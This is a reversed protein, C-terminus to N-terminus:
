SLNIMGDDRLHAYVIWQGLDTPFKSCSDFYRGNITTSQVDGKYPEIIKFTFHNKDSNSEVLEGLFVVDAREYSVQRMNELPRFNKCDCAIIQATLILILFLTGLHKM